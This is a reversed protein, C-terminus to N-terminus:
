SKGGADHPFARHPFTANGVRRTDLSIHLKRPNLM